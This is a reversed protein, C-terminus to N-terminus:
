RERIAESRYRLLPSLLYEIVRRTGTKIEVTVAMGPALNVERGDVLMETRDLSVRAAYVPPQQGRGGGASDGGNRPRDATADDTSADRTLADPSVSTVTGHLLGYKTFNFTEVKIEAPQGAEVFGIDKNSVMAEIELRSDAPVVVMLQQAPTVVGGVTHVALQQVTGDVPAALRLLQRRQEAKILDEALSAAKQEAERLDALTQRRYEADAQRRQEALAAQQAQAETRRAQQVNLEHEHEVLDQQVELYQLKSGVEREALYKRAEMRQRLLPIAAELKAVSAEVAARNAAAQAVQRDLNALKARQEAVQSALLRRQVAVQEEPAGKPPAFAADPDAALAASLRAADLRQAMLEKALRDRDAGNITPDLEVLVEGAKVKQGEEVHIARVVGTEFPQIVKVRGTPVIRGSATAVIDVPSLCAWAIAALFFLIITGAIARGLPSAPTEIIELAAPLFEREPGRPALRVVRRVPNAEAQAM